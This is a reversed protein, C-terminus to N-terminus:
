SRCIRSPTRPSTRRRCGGDLVQGHNMYVRFYADGFELVYAQTDTFEFPICGCAIARRRTKTTAVYHTGARRTIAGHPLAVFNELTKCANGYRQIDVRGDLKPSFEGATVASQFPRARPM